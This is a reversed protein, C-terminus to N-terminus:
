KCMGTLLVNLLKLGLALLKGILGICKIISGETSHRSNKVNM